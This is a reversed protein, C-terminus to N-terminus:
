LHPVSLGLAPLPGGWGGWRTPVRGLIRPGSAAAPSRTSALGPLPGQPGLTGGGSTGQGVGWGPEQAGAPRVHSRTVSGAKPFIGLFAWTGPLPPRPGSPGGQGAARPGPAERLPRPWPSSGQLEAIPLTTTTKAPQSDLKKVKCIPLSLCSTGWPTFFPHGSGPMRGRPSGLAAARGTGRRPREAAGSQFSPSRPAAELQATRPTQAKADRGPPGSLFHPLPAAPINSCLVQPGRSRRSSRPPRRKGKQLIPLSSKGPHPGRLAQAASGGRDEEDEGALLSPSQPSPPLRFRGPRPTQSQAKGLREAAGRWDPLGRGGPRAEAYGGRSFSGERRAGLGGGRSTRRELRARGARPKFLARAPSSM